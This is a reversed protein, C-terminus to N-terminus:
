ERLYRWADGLLRGVYGQPTVGVTRGGGVYGKGQIAFGFADARSPSFQPNVKKWGGKPGDNPDFMWWDNLFGTNTNYGLGIFAKNDLVFASADGRSAGPCPAMEMWQGTSPNYAWCDSLSAFTVDNTGVSSSRFGGFVYGRQGIVFACAGRRGIGTPNGNADHHPLPAVSRWPAVKSPDYEYFENLVRKSSGLTTGTGLYAKQNIVFSVADMSGLPLNPLMGLNQRTNLDFKYLTQALFLSGNVTQAGSGVYLTDGIVFSLANFRRLDNPTSPWKMWQETGPDFEWIEGLENASGGSALGDFAALGNCGGGVFAKGAATASFTGWVNKGGFPANAPTWTDLVALTDVASYFTDRDTQLFARVYYQIGPVLRTLSDSFFRDRDIEGKPILSDLGIRPLAHTPSWVFGHALAKANLKNLGRVQATVWIRDNETRELTKEIELLLNLSFSEVQPAYVLRGGRKAYARFYYTKNENPLIFRVKYVAGLAAKGFTVRETLATPNDVLARQESWLVGHDEVGQIGVESLSDSLVIEGLTQGPVPALTKVEFFDLEELTPTCASAM